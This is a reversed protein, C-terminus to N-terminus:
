LVEVKVRFGDTACEDLWDQLNQLHWDSNDADTQKAWERYADLPAGSYLIDYSTDTPPWWGSFIRIPKNKKTAFIVINMSM